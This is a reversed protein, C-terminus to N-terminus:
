HAEVNQTAKRPYEGNSLITFILLHIDNHSKQVSLFRTVIPLIIINNRFSLKEIQIKLNHAEYYIYLM